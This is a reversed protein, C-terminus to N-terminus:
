PAEVAGATCPDGRPNGRQDTAPCGTAIGIAPSGAAPLLTQTAGGNPALAGLMPDAVLPSATCLSGSPWQLNGITGDLPPAECSPDYQATNAAIITNQLTLGTSFIAGAVQGAATARNNAITCNLMTGTPSNALWVGGGNSAIATNNAITVNTLNASGADLWIGGNYGGSNYSITSATIDIALGELYLGGANGQATADIQNHDVTSRDMAFSGTHDNSVRFFGGGIAGATSNAITVGCLSTLEHTGDMYVAGGCGGDGPNGGSGTASNTDFTTNIITLDGNLSGVAGGDSASNNTFTSGAIVTEGGGFGYIAGGALDQGTAGAHNDDFNSDIVTLSGGDRYIAGGGRATDDGTPPGLGGHFSLRQVTLRPTATNYDSDLYLIRTAGGGDLTVLGGGDLVTEASVTIPQTIPITIPASGCAFVITGGASAATQLALNTCSAPLGTGVTATPSSTDVLSPATCVAAPVGADPGGGGGGGGGGGHGGGCAGLLVVVVSRWASTM